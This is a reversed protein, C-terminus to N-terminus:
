WSMSDTRYRVNTGGDGTGEDRGLDLVVDSLRCFRSEPFAVPRSSGVSASYLM